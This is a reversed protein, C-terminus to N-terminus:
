APPAGSRPRGSRPARRESLLELLQGAARRDVDPWTYRLVMWGAAQAARDRARDIRFQDRTSHAGYGDLEVIVRERRWVVDAEITLEGLELTANYEPPPLGADLILGRFRDELESRTHVTAEGAREVAIRLEGTGRPRADLLVGLRTFDVIGLFESERVARDIQHPQLVKALDILTREPTTCPIGRHVTRESAGIPSRSALLQTGRRHRNPAIVEPRGSYPRMGWLAAASRHSLVAEAGCALVAALWRGEGAIRTHGVAYVGRHVPHLRGAELRGAIMRRTFGLALLQFRAVVGYQRAALGALV